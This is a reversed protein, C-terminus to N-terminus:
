GEGFAALVMLLMSVGVLWCWGFGSSFWVVVGVGVRGGGVLLWWFGPFFLWGNFGALGLFSSSSGLTFGFWSVMVLMNPGIGRLGGFWFGRVVLVLLWVLVVVRIWVVVPAFWFRFGSCSM